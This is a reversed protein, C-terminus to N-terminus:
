KIKKKELLLRCVLDSHSQLESTHEESRLDTEAQPIAQILQTLQDRQHASVSVPLSSLSFKSSQTQIDYLRPLLYDISTRVLDLTATTVLPQHSTNNLLSGRFTPALKDATDILQHGIDSVDIGIQSIAHVAVIQPQYQPLYQNVAAIVQAHDLTYQVQQFNQRAAQFERQARQLKNVDLFGTPHASLGTFVTKVNLLHQVGDFAQTRVTTYTTYANVGYAVAFLGSILTGVISLSFLVLIVVM